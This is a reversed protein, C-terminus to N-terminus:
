FEEVPPIRDTSIYQSPAHKLTTVRPRERAMSWSTRRGICFSTRTGGHAGVTTKSTSTRTSLSQFPPCTHRQQHPHYMQGPLPAGIRNILNGAIRQCRAAPTFPIFKRMATACEAGSTVPTITNWWFCSCICHRRMEAHDPALARCLIMQHVPFLVAHQDVVHAVGPAHM